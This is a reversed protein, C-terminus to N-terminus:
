RVVPRISRMCPSARPAPSLFFSERDMWRWPHLTIRPFPAPLFLPLPVRFLTRTSGRFSRRVQITRGRAPPMFTNSHQKAPAQSALGLLLLLSACERFPFFVYSSAKMAHWEQFSSFTQAQSPVPIVTAHHLYTTLM